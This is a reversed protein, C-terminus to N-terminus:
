TEVAQGQDQHVEGSTRRDENRGEKNLKQDLWATIDAEIWRTMRSRRPGQPDGLHVPKPFNPDNASLRWVYSVAVSLRQSVEKVTLLNM